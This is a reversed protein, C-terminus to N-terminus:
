AGDLGTECLTRFAKRSRKAGLRQCAAGVGTFVRGSDESHRERGLRPLGEVVRRDADQSSSKLLAHPKVFRREIERVECLLVRLIRRATKERLEIRCREKKRPMSQFYAQGDRVVSFRFLSCLIDGYAPDILRWFASLSWAYNHGIGTDM